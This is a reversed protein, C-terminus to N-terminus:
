GESDCVERRDVVIMGYVERVRISWEPFVGNVHKQIALLMSSLGGPGQWGLCSKKLYVLPKRTSNRLWSSCFDSLDFLFLVNECPRQYNKNTHFTKKRGSIDPWLKKQNHNLQRHSFNRNHPSFSTSPTSILKTHWNQHQQCLPIKLDPL